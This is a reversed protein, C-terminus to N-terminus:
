RTFGGYNNFYSPNLHKIIKKVSDNAPGYVTIKKPTALKLLEPLMPSINNMHFILAESNLYRNYYHVIKNDPSFWFEYALTNIGNIKVQSSGKTILEKLEDLKGKKIKAEVNWSIGIGM